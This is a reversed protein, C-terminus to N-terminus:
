RLARSMNSRDFAMPKKYKVNRVSRDLRKGFSSKNIVAFLDTRSNRYRVLESAYLELKQSFNTWHRRSQEGWSQKNPDHLRPKCCPWSPISSPPAGEISNSMVSRDTACIFAEIDWSEALPITRRKWFHINVRIREVKTIQTSHHAPLPSTLFRLVASRRISWDQHKFTM